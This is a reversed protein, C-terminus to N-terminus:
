TNLGRCDEETKVVEYELLFFIAGAGKADVRPRRKTVRAPLHTLGNQSLDPPTGSKSRIKQTHLAPANLPNMQLGFSM